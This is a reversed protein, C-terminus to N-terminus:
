GKLGTIESLVTSSEAPNATTTSQSSKQKKPSKDVRKQQEPAAASQASVTFVEQMSITMAVGDTNKSNRNVSISQIVMSRYTKLTTTVRLREGEYRWQNLTEWADQGRAAKISPPLAIATIDMPTGTVVGNITLRAPKPRANDSVNSGEEVPYDTIDSEATHTEDISADLTVLSTGFIFGTTDVAFTVQKRPAILDLIGPM